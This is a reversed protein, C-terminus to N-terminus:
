ERGHPTLYDEPRLPKWGFAARAQDCRPSHTGNEYSAEFKRCTSPRREYIACVVDRGLEGQLQACRMPESETGRMAVMQRSIAVVAEEPVHYSAKLTETWPFSVRYLACCAGCSQCPHM